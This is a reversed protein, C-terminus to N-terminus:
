AVQQHMQGNGAEETRAPRSADMLFPYAAHAFTPGVYRSARQLSCSVQHIRIDGVAEDAAVLAKLRAQVQGVGFIPMDQCRGDKTLSAGDDSVVALIKRIADERWESDRGLMWGLEDLVSEIQVRNRDHFSDGAM